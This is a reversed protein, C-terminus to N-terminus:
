DHFKKVGARIEVPLDNEKPVRPCSYRSSYACYPNYAKNFDLLLTDGAPIPLDIYRGGGYTTDGNTRDTFPVFLLDDQATMSRYANLVLKKGEISFHLEGYKVYMPLRRTTTKMAFPKENPTRVFTATVAFAADPAFFDLSKFHKLDDPDLPSEQPTAFEHNLQIQFDLVDQQSFGQASLFSTWLVIIAFGIKRM